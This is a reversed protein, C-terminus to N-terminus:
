MLTKTQDNRSYNKYSSVVVSEFAIESDIVWM